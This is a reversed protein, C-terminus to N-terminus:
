CAIRGVVPSYYMFSRHNANNKKIYDVILIKKKEQSWAKVKYSSFIYIFQSQVLTQCKCTFWINIELLVDDLVIGRLINLMSITIRDKYLTLYFLFFLKSEIKM